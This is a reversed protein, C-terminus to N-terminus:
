EKTFRKLFGASLCGLAMLAAATPLLVPWVSESFLDFLLGYIVQGAPQACTSLAIVCAMIKGTLHEPTSEQIMSLALVSFMSCVAQAICFCALLLLYRVIVSLPLLFAAGAPILVAGAMILLSQLGNKQLRGALLGVTLAGAVSAGGMLSEAAGYHGASLGLVNRVLFPLGVVATGVVFFSALAALLLLWFVEPRKKLLFDMSEGLDQRLIQRVKQGGPRRQFRLRIFCELLATLFFCAACVALVPRIGVATYFLSGLFPTVLGAVAQVQSVAANGKLLNEGTQMQPVCAQVTPSEFAGLIGLVVQLIGILLLIPGEQGPLHAWSTGHFGGTGHFRRIGHFGCIGLLTLFVATGSFADLAVMMNRRNLRDALLGGIPALLVQPVTAVALLGAFISASGTQELVYMSLAFKLTYNGILSFVQGLLLLTFNRNFLKEKM